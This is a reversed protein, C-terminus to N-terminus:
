RKMGGARVGKFLWQLYMFLYIIFYFMKAKVGIKGDTMISDTGSGEIDIYDPAQFISFRSHSVNGANLSLHKRFIFLIM